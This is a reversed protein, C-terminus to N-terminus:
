YLSIYPAAYSVNVYVCGFVRARERGVSLTKYSEQEAVVGGLTHTYNGNWLVPRFRRSGEHILRRPSSAMNWMRDITEKINPTNILMRVQIMFIFTQRDTYM